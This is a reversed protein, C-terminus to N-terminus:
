RNRVMVSLKRYWPLASWAAVQEFAPEDYLHLPGHAGSFVAILPAERYGGQGFGSHDPELRMLGFVYVPDGVRLARLYANRPPREGVPSIRHERFPGDLHLEVDGHLRASTDNEDSIRLFARGSEDGICFDRGREFRELDPMAFRRYEEEVDVRTGVAEPSGLAAGLGYPLLSPLPAVAGRNPTVIIEGRVLQLTARGSARLAAEHAEAILAPPQSFRRM